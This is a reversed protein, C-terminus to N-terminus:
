DELGGSDCVRQAVSRLAINREQSLDRLLAFAGGGDRHCREMVIGMAEGIVHRTTLASHLETDTRAGSLAVAAHPTLLVGATESVETFARPQRAYMDLAGFEEDDAFSLFTM